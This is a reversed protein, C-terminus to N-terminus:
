GHNCFEGHLEERSRTAVKIAEEKDAYSGLCHVKRNRTIQVIWKGRHKNFHVGKTGSTNNKRLPTNQNNGVVDTGRLNDWKNNMRCTDIHDVVKPLKGTMIYFALRHAYVGRTGCGIVLYGDKLTGALRGRTKRSPATVKWVFTGENPNYDIHLKLYEYLADM